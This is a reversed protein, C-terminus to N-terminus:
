AVQRYPKYQITTKRPRSVTDISVEGAKIIKKHHQYYATRKESGSIIRNARSILILNVDSDM